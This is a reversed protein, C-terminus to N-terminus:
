ARSLVEIPSGVAVRGPAIVRMYIGRLHLDRFRRDATLRLADHGFRGRFKVCGTHPEPTVELVADGCRLRTGPPLNASSLDLEVVLNDGFLTLPQGNAILKAVDARLVTLQADPKDPTRRGWADDPMGGEPTLLVHEPTDRVEQERRAVLMAVRGREAPPAALALFAPELAEFPLHYKASGFPGGFPRTLEASPRREMTEIFQLLNHLRSLLEMGDADAALYFLPPYLWLDALSIQDGALFRSHQLAADAHELLRTARARAQKVTPEPLPTPGAPAFVWHKLMAEYLSGTVLSLWQHVRAQQAAPQPVLAKGGFVADLYVGIANPDHVVTDGHRV